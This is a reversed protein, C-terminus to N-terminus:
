SIISFDFFHWVMKKNENYNTRCTQHQPNSSFMKTNLDLFLILKNVKKNIDKTRSGHKLHAQFCTNKSAHWAKCFNEFGM